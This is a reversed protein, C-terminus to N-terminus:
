DSPITTLFNPPTINDGLAHLCYVPRQLIRDVVVLMADPFKVLRHGTLRVRPATQRLPRAIHQDRDGWHWVVIMAPLFLLEDGVRELTGMPGRYLRLNGPRTLLEFDRGMVPIEFLLEDWDMPLGLRPNIQSM